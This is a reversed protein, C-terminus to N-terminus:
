ADTLLKAVADRADLPRHVMVGHDLLVWIPRRDADPCVRAADDGVEVDLQGPPDALDDVASLRNLRADRHSLAVRATGQALRSGSVTFLARPVEGGRPAIPEAPPSKNHERPVTEHRWAPRPLAPRHPQRHRRAGTPQCPQTRTPLKPPTPHSHRPPRPRRGVDGTSSTPTAGRATLNRPGGRGVSMRTEASRM